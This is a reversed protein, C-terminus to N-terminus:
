PTSGNGPNPSAKAMLAIGCIILVTGAINGTTVTEGFFAVGSILLLVYLMSNFFYAWSLPFNRMVLQWAIAQLGLFFLSGLYWPNGIVTDIGNLNRSDVELSAFKGMVAATGQLLVSLPILLFIFSPHRNM